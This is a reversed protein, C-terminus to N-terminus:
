YGNIYAKQLFTWEYGKESKKFMIKKIITFINLIVIYVNRIDLLTNYM